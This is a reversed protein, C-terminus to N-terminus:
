LITARFRTLVREIYNCYTVGNGESFILGVPKRSTAEVVLSGSDGGACFASPNGRVTFQDHFYALGFPPYRVTIDAHPDDVHGVTHFTTSGHKVVSMLQVPALVSSGDVAGISEIEPTMDAPNVLEAIAADIANVPGNFVLPEFDTLRAIPPNVRGKEGLSPELIPDHALPPAANQRNVNALVHNNSLIFRGVGNRSVLCGLTGFAVNAHAGSIGARTPRPFAPRVEGVAIVDTPLGNLEEPIIEHAALRRRPLKARVYVRVAEEAGIGSGTWKTGYGFGLVNREPPIAALYSREPGAELAATMVQGHMRIALEQKMQRARSRSEDFDETM